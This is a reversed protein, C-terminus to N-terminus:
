CLIELDSTSVIKPELVSYVVVQCEVCEAYTCYEEKIEKATYVDLLLSNVKKCVPCEIKLYVFDFKGCCSCRTIIFESM